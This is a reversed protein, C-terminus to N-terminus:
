DNNKLQIKEDRYFKEEKEDYNDSGDKKKNSAPAIGVLMTGMLNIGYELFMVSDTNLYICMDECLSSCKYMLNIYKLDFQLRIINPVDDEDDDRKMVKISIGNEGDVKFIRSHNSQEGKCTIVFKSPDCTIEVAPSFQLLDKCAKHFAQCNIRVLMAFEVTIRRNKKSPLNLVRLECISQHSASNNSKVDFVIHQTDDADIHIRMVGEKDVNKIYKRLM